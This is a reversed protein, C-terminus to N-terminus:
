ILKNKGEVFDKATSGKLKILERQKEKRYRSTDNVEYHPDYLWKRIKRHDLTSMERTSPMYRINNEDEIDFARRMARMSIARFNYLNIIKQMSPYFLGMQKLIPSIDNVWDVATDRKPMNEYFIVLFFPKNKPNSDKTFVHGTIAFSNM